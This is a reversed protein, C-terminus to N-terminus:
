DQNWIISVVYNEINMSEREEISQIINDIASEDCDDGHYHRWQNIDGASEALIEQGVRYRLNEVEAEIDIIPQNMM